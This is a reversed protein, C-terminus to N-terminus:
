SPHIRKKLDSSFELPIKVTIIGNVYSAAIQKRPDKALNKPMPFVKKFKGYEIRNNTNAIISNDVIPTKIAQIICENEENIDITIDNKNTGPMEIRLVWDTLTEYEEYTPIKSSHEFKTYNIDKGSTTQQNSSNHTTELKFCPNDDIIQKRENKTSPSPPEKTIHYKINTTDETNHETKKSNISDLADLFLKPDYISAPYLGQDLLCKICDKNKKSFAVMFM